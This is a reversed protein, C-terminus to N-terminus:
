QNVVESLYNFLMLEETVVSKRLETIKAINHCKNM